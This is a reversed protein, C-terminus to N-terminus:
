PFSCACPMEKDVIRDPHSTTDNYQEVRQLLREYQWSDGQEKTDKWTKAFINKKRNQPEILDDIDYM